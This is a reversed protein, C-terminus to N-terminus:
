EGGFEGSPEYLDEAARIFDEEWFDIDPFEERATHAIAEAIQSETMDVYDKPDVYLTRSTTGVLTVYM